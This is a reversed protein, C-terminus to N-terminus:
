EVYILSGAPLLHRLRNVGTCERAMDRDNRAVSTAARSMDAQEEALASGAVEVVAFVEPGSGEVVVVSLVEVVVEVVLVV